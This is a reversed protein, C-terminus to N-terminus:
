KGETKDEVKADPKPTWGLNHVVGEATVGLVQGPDFLNMTDLTFVILKESKAHLFMDTASVGVIRPVGQHSEFVMRATWKGKASMEVVHVTGHMLDMHMLGGAALFRGQGFSELDQIHIGNAVLTWEKDGETACFLAGGFEGGDFSALYGGDTRWIRPEDFFRNFKLPNEIKPFDTKSQILESDTCPEIKFGATTKKPAPADGRPKQEAPLLVAFPDDPEAQEGEAAGALLPASFFCATLIQQLKVSKM